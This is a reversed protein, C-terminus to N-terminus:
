PGFGTLTTWTDDAFFHICHRVEKGERSPAYMDREWVPNAMKDHIEVPQQIPERWLKEEKLCKEAQDLQVEYKSLL